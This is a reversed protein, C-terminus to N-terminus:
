TEAVALSQILEPPMTLSAIREDVGSQHVLLDHDRLERLLRDFDAKNGVVLSRKCTNFADTLDVTIPAAKKQKRSKNSAAAQSTALHARCLVGLLEKHRQSLSSMVFDLGTAGARTAESRGQMASLAAEDMPFPAMLSLTEHMWRFKCLMETDWLLGVNLHDATAVLGVSPCEALMALCSQAELSSRSPSEMQEVLLFVMERMYLYRGGSSQGASIQRATRRGRSEEVSLDFHFMSGAPPAEPRAVDVSVDASAELQSSTERQNRNYHANLLSVIENTYLPLSLGRSRMNKPDKALLERALTDLMERVGCSPRVMFVDSKDLLGALSDLVGRKCGVGTLLLSRGAELARCWEYLRAVNLESELESYNGRENLIDRMTVDLVPLSQKPVPISVGSRARAGGGRQVGFLRAAGGHVALQGLPPPEQSSKLEDRM